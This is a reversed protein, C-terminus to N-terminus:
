QQTWMSQFVIQVNQLITTFYRSCTCFLSFRTFLDNVNFSFIIIILTSKCCCLEGFDDNSFRNTVCILTLKSSHLLRFRTQHNLTWCSSNWWDIRSPPYWTCNKTHYLLCVISQPLGFNHFEILDYYNMSNLRTSKSIASHTIQKFTPRILSESM